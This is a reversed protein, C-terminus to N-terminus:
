RADALVGNPIRIQVGTRLQRADPCVDKNLDLLEQWRKSTGLQEQAITSYLDGKKVTYWRWSPEAPEGEPSAARSAKPQSSTLVVRPEDSTEPALEEAPKSKSDQPQMPNSRSSRADRAGVEALAADPSQGDVVPLRIARGVVLSQPSRVKGRNAAMIADLVHKGATGYYRRAIHILTDGKQVVHEVAAADQSTSSEARAPSPDPAVSSVPLIGTGREAQAPSPAASRKGRRDQPDAAVVELQDSYHALSAPLGTAEASQGPEVPQEVSDEPPNGALTLPAPESELSGDNQLEAWSESEDADYHADALGDALGDALADDPTAAVHEEADDTPAQEDRRALERTPLLSRRRQILREPNQNGDMRPPRAERSPPEPTNADSPQAQPIVPERIASQLGGDIHLARAREQAANGAPRAPEPAPGGFLQYPMQPAVRDLGGRNSLVIAFCIIFGMGVLLGIRTEHAM